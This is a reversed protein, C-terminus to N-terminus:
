LFNIIIKRYILQQEKFVSLDFLQAASDDRIALELFGGHNFLCLKEGIQVDSYDKSIKHISVNRSFDIQFDRGKRYTEFDEENINIVVNGYHDVHIVQCELSQEKIIPKLQLAGELPKAFDLQELKYNQQEWVRIFSATKQMWEWYSSANFGANYTNKLKNPFTLPLLKNDASLIYQGEIETLLLVAPKQFMLNFLSLHITKPPFYPFSSRLFYSCQLLHFPLVDHSLDIVKADPLQAHLIGKAIGVFNDQYGFDSLLTIIM